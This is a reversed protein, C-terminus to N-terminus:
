VETLQELLPSRDSSKGKGKEDRSEQLFKIQFPEGQYRNEIKVLPRHKGALAHIYDVCWDTLMGDLCFIRKAQQLAQSFREMIEERKQKLTEGM